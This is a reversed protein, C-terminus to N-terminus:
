QKMLEVMANGMAEGVNMYTEANGGYHSNSAGGMSLPHTYVAAVNGKFEPYKGSKGDVAFMADLIKGGNSTDGKVTQGLTATVFKANPAKFQKRLSKILNVLNLEYRESLATDYSDRDGQWWFIGAVEYDTAGPYYTGLDGLIHAMDATDGDYQIGAAWNVPKPTTGKIWKAPSDHYGAYTYTTNKKTKRDVSTYDFQASGPPLLDWGLARNGICSKLVMVQDGGKGVMQGIGFEPGIDGGHSGGKAMAGVQMFENNQLKAKDFTQNGSGMVFVNRVTKSIAWDGTKTDWLYPYKKETKVAFELTGNTTGAIKGEGLMNSQGMLLYVQVPKATVTLTVFALIGFALKMMM